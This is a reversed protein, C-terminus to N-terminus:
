KATDPEPEVINETSPLKPLNNETVSLRDPDKNLTFSIEPIGIKSTNESSVTFIPVNPASPKITVPDETTTLGFLATVFSVKVILCPLM